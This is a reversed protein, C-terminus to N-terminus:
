LSKWTDFTLLALPVRNGPSHGLLKLACSFTRSYMSKSRAEHTDGGVVFQVASVHASCPKCHPTVLSPQPLESLQPVHAFPSVHPPPPVAPSHPCGSPPAHVGFVHASCPNAHPGAPSPHPFRIWHPVQAEGSVHPPPPTFPCHPSGSPPAHVGRDQAACFMAQPGAPSPHPLAM